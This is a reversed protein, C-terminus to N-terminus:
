EKLTIKLQSSQGCANETCYRLGYRKTGSGHMCVVKRNFPKDMINNALAGKEAVEDRQHPITTLLPPTLEPTTKTM